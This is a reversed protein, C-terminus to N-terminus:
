MYITSYLMSWEVRSLTKDNSMICTLYLEYSKVPAYLQHTAPCVITAHHLHSVSATSEEGNLLSDLLYVIRITYYHAVIMCVTSNDNGLVNSAAVHADRIFTFTMMQYRSYRSAFKNQESSAYVSDKLQSARRNRLLM